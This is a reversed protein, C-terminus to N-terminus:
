RVQFLQMYPTTDNGIRFQLEYTGTALGVTSLNYVYGGIADSYRFGGDPNANGADQVSGVTASTVQRVTTVVVQLAATSVNVDGNLVRIKLPITSGRRHPRSADDLRAVSYLPGIQRALVFPSLSDVTACITRTAFDSSSTRDVLSGNEGHLVRLLVFEAATQVHSANFCITIPAAVGATTSIEYALAGDISFQGPVTLNLDSPPISEVTTEGGSVVDAFTVSAQAFAATVPAVNAGATTGTTNTVSYGTVSVAGYHAGAVYLERAAVDIKLGDGPGFYNFDFGGLFEDFFGLAHLGHGTDLDIAALTMGHSGSAHNLKLLGINATPDLTMDIANLTGNEFWESMPISIPLFHVISHVTPSAPDGDIVYLGRAENVYVKNTRPNITAQRRTAYCCGNPILPIPVRAVVTGYTPRTRDADVAVMMNTHTVYVYSTTPNVAISEPGTEIPVSTVTWTPDTGVPPEVIKLFYMDGAEAVGCYLRGTGEDTAM